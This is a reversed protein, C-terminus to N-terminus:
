SHSLFSYVFKPLLKRNKFLATLFLDYRHSYNCYVCISFPLPRSKCKNRFKIFSEGNWIEEFTNTRLNGMKFDEAGWFGHTLDESLNQFTSAHCCPYVNGFPDVTVMLWPQFCLIKSRMPLAYKGALTSEKNICLSIITSLTSLPLGTDKITAKISSLNTQLNILDKNTLLLDRRSRITKPILPLFNIEDYGLKSKLAVIKSILHYNTRNIIFFLSVTLNKRYKRKAYNINHIGEITKKWAGEVGRIADHPGSVPGDISFIINDLGAKILKEASTKTILTGNTIMQVELQEKKAKEIIDFIDKRLMPEGGSLTLFKTGMGSLEELFEVGESYSLENQRTNMKSTGLKWVNCM